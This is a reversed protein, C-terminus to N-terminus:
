PCMRTKWIKSTFLSLNKFDYKRLGSVMYLIFSDVNGMYLIFSNVNGM